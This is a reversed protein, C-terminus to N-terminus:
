LGGKTFVTTSSRTRGRQRGNWQASVTVKVSQQTTFAAGTYSVNGNPLRVCRNSTPTASELPEVTISETVGVLNASTVTEPAIIQSLKAPDTLQDWLAGRLSDVREQIMQTAYSNEKGQRLLGLFHANAAFVCSLMLAVLALGIVAEILAFAAHSSRSRLTQPLGAPHSASRKMGVWKLM